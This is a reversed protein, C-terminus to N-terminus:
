RSNSTENRLIDLYLMGYPDYDVGHTVSTPQNTTCANGTDDVPEIATDEHWENWSTIVVLFDAREDVVTLANKLMIRFLSGPVANEDLKRSLPVLRGKNNFGPSVSPLFACSIGSSRCAKRWEIQRAHYKDVGEQRAYCDGKSKLNGYVDYNTVGDLWQFPKYEVPNRPANQWIQDGVLYINNHGQKAAAQRMIEIAQELLGKKFLSRTLYIFIV